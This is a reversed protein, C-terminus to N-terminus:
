VPEVRLAAAIESWLELDPREGVLSVRDAVGGVRARIEAAIAAPSPGRVAFLALV